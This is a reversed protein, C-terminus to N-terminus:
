PVLRTDWTMSAIDFGGRGTSGVNTFAVIIPPCRNPENGALMWLQKAQQGRARYELSHGDVKYHYVGSEIGAIKDIALHTETPHLNGSSANVRLAWRNDTNRVQKWASIATSYFLLNSVLEADACHEHVATRAANPILDFYKESGRAITRSLEIVDAGQYSRFPNPQNKWDLYHDGSLLKDVTHKTLDHYRYSTSEILQRASSVPDFGYVDAM